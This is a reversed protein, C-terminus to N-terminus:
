SEVWIKKKGDSNDYKVSWQNQIYIFGIGVWAYIGVVESGKQM